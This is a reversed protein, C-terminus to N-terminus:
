RQCGRVKITRSFVSKANERYPRYALPGRCLGRFCLAQMSSGLRASVVVQDVGFCDRWDVESHEIRVNLAEYVSTKVPLNHAVGINAITQIACPRCPHSLARVCMWKIWLLVIVGISTATSVGQAAKYLLRYMFTAHCYSTPLRSFWLVVM